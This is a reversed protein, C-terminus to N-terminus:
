NSCTPDETKLQLIHVRSQLIHFRTQQGPISGPSEANPAPPRLVPGGPFDLSAQKWIFKEWTM